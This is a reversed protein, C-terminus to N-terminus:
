KQEQTPENNKIVTYIKLALRNIVEKSTEGEHEGQKFEGYNEWLALKILNLADKM